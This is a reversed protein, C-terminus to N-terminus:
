NADTPRPTTPAAAPAPAALGAGNSPAAAAPAPAAPAAPAPLQAPARDPLAGPPRNSPMPGLPMLKGDISTVIHERMMAEDTKSLMSRPDMVVLAGAPIERGASVWLAGAVRAWPGLAVGVFRDGADVPKGRHMVKVNGLFNLDQFYSGTFAVSGEGLVSLQMGLQAAFARPYVVSARVGSLSSVSAGPGIVSLDVHAGDEIRAGKGIYSGNVIARAGIVAGEEIVSASVHATHHVQAKPHIWKLSTLIRGGKWPFAALLRWLFWLKSGLSKGREAWGGALATMNVRQIHVWHDIRCMWTDTVAFKASSEGTMGIPVPFEFVKEKFPLVTPVAAAVRAGPAIAYLPAVYAPTDGATVAQLGEIHSLRKSSVAQPVAAQLAPASGAAFAALLKSLVASSFAVADTVIISGGSVSAAAAEADAITAVEDVKLGAAAFLNKQHDRVTCNILWADGAPQEFPPVISTDRVVFAHQIARSM